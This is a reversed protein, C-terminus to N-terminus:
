GEKEFVIDVHTIVGIGSGDKGLETAEYSYNGEASRQRRMLYVDQIKRGTVGEAIRLWATIKDAYPLTREVSQHLSLKRVEPLMDFTITDSPGLSDPDSENELLDYNEYNSIM